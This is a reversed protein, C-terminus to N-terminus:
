KGMYKIPEIEFEDGILPYQLDLGNIIILSKNRYHKMIQPPYEHLSEVLERGLDTHMIEKNVSGM